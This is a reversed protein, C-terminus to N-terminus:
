KIKLQDIVKKIDLDLDLIEEILEKEFEFDGSLWMQKGLLFRYDEFMDNYLEKYQNSLNQSSIVNKFEELSNSINKFSDRIILNDSIIM